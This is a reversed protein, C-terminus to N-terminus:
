GLHGCTGLHPKSVTLGRDLPQLPIRDVTVVMIKLLALVAESSGPFHRRLLGTTEGEIPLFGRLESTGSRIGM